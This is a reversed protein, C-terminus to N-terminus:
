EKSELDGLLQGSAIRVKERRYIAVYSEVKVREFLHESVSLVMVNFDNQSNVRISVRRKPARPDYIVGAAIVQFFYKKVVIYISVVFHRLSRGELISLTM